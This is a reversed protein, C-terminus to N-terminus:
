FRCIRRARHHVPGIMRAGQDGQAEARQRSDRSRRRDLAQRDGVRGVRRDGRAGGLEDDAIDVDPVGGPTAEHGVAAVYRQTVIAIQLAAVPGDRDDAATDIGTSDGHVACGGTDQEVRPAQVEAIRDNRRREHRSIVSDLTVHRKAWAVRRDRACGETAGDHTSACVQRDGIARDFRLRRDSSEVTDEQEAAIEGHGVARDLAARLNADNGHM